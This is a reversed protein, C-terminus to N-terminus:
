ETMRKLVDPLGATPLEVANAAMDSQGFFRVQLSSASEFASRMEDTLDAFATCGAPLCVKFPLALTEEGAVIQAGAELAVGLPLTVAVGIVKDSTLSTLTVSAIARGGDKETAAMQSVCRDTVCQPYWTTEQAAVATTGLPFVLALSRLFVKFSSM